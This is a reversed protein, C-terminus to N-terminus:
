RQMPVNTVIVDDETGDMGDAGWSWMRYQVASVMEYQYPNSWPDPPIEKSSYPGRWKDPNALDTPAFMLADLGQNSNPLSGVHLRYAKLQTEFMGMQTKALDEYAGAQMQAIFIGVMSGLIVIIALVLLVEMLTFGGRRRRHMRRTRM